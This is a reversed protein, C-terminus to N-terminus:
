PTRCGSNGGLSLSADDVYTLQTYRGYSAHPPPSPGSGGDAGPETPPPTPSATTSLLGCRFQARNSAAGQGSDSRDRAGPDSNSIRHAARSGHPGTQPSTCRHAAAPLQSAFCGRDMRPKSGASVDFSSIPTRLVPASLGTTVDAPSRSCGSVAICIVIALSFTCRQVTM